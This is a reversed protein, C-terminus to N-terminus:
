QTVALRNPKSLTLIPEDCAYEQGVSVIRWGDEYKGVEIGISLGFGNPTKLRLVTESSNSDEIVELGKVEASAEKLEDKHM